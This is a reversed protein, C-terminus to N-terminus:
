ARSAPIEARRSLSSSWTSSALDGLSIMASRTIRSCFRSSAWVPTLTFSSAAAVPKASGVFRTLNKRSCVPCVGSSNRAAPRTAPRAAGRRDGFNVM